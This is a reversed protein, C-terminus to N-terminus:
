RGFFAKLREFLEALRFRIVYGDEDDSIIRLNGDGLIKAAKEYDSANDPTLEPFIVGWWNHGEGQGIVVRLSSYEGAPLRCNESEREGYSQVGFQVSISRGESAAEAASRILDLSASVEDRAQRSDDCRALIPEICACVADKVRGKLQQEYESDSQAIVHLRIINESLRAFHSQQVTGWCLSVCVAILLSAEWIKIRGSRRSNM